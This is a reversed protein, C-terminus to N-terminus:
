SYYKNIFDVIISTKHYLDIINNLFVKTKIQEFQLQISIDDMIFRERMKSILQYRKKILKYINNLKLLSKNLIEKNINLFEILRVLEVSTIEHKLYKTSLVELEKLLKIYMQNIEFDFNLIKTIVKSNKKKTNKEYFDVVIDVLETNISDISISNELECFSM